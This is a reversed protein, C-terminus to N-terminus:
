RARVPLVKVTVGGMHATLLLRKAGVLGGEPGQELGDMRIERPALCFTKLLQLLEEGKDYFRTQDRLAPVLKEWVGWKSTMNEGDQEEEEPLEKLFHFEVCSTKSWGEMLSAPLDAWSYETVQLNAEEWRPYYLWARGFCVDLRELRGAPPNAVEALAELVELELSGFPSEPRGDPIPFDVQVWRLYRGPGSRIFKVNWDSTDVFQYTQDYLISM